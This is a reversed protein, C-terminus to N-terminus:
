SQDECSHNGFCRCLTIFNCSRLPIDSFRYNRLLDRDYIANNNNNNNCFVHAQFSVVCHSTIPDTTQITVTNTAHRNATTIFLTLLAGATRAATTVMQVSDMVEEQVDPTDWVVLEENHCCPQPLPLLLPCGVLQSNM